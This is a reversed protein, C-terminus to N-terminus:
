WDQFTGSLDLLSVCVDTLMSLPDHNSLWSSVMHCPPDLSDLRWQAIIFWQHLFAITPHSVRHLSGTEVNQETYDFWYILEPCSMNVLHVLAYSSSAHQNVNCSNINDATLYKFLDECGTCTDPIVLRWHNIWFLTLDMAKKDIAATEWLYFRESYRLLFQLCCLSSDYLIQRVKSLLM